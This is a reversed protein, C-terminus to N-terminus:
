YVSGNGCGTLIPEGAKNLAAYYFSSIAFAHQGRDDKPEPPQMDEMFDDDPGLDDPDFDDDPEDEPDDDSDELHGYGLSDEYSRVMPPGYRDDSEILAQRLDFSDCYKELMERNEKTLERYSTGYITGVMILLFLLLAAMIAVIIKIRSRRFM